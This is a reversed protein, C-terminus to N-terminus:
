MIVLSLLSGPAPIVVLTSQFYYGSPATGVNEFGIYSVAWSVESGADDRPISTTSQTCKKATPPTMEDVQRRLFGTLTPILSCPAYSPSNAKTTPRFMDFCIPRSM